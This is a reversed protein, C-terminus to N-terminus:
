VPIGGAITYMAENLHGGSPANAIEFIPFAKGNAFVTSIYDGVKNDGQPLWSAYMPGALTKRANWTKGGNDSSVFGVYLPCDSACNASYTYFSLGLHAANSSTTPDAGLGNIYYMAGSGIAAIPIRQPQTWTTGDTSTAMVLDNGHCNVEFRCDVWVFYLKGSGDMAASLLIHDQYHAYSPYSYAPTITVSRNWSAGGNTSSYVAVTTQARGLIPVIVHGDPQVLMGADLGSVDDATTEFRGWSKGGDTSTSMEMLNGRDYDDWAAYCRGYYPSTSTNDCAVWDKDLYGSFGVYDVIVPRSWTLGGDTSLNVLVAPAAISNSTYVFAVTGILWTHYLADYAVTPDTIRDYSGGALKTTGPLFGKKWTMGGNNSTAWGINASGVDSFRGAQLATVITSGFAFAGPEVETQYQGPSQSYPDSSLQLPTIVQPTPTATPPPPITIAVPPTGSRTTPTTYTQSGSNSACSVSALSLLVLSLVAFIPWRKRTLATM